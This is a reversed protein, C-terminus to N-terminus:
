KIRGVEVSWHRDCRKCQKTIAKSRENPRYYILDLHPWTWTDHKKWSCIFIWILFFKVSTLWNLITKKMIAGDTKQIGNRSPVSGSLQWSM